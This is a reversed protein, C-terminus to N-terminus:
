PVNVHMFMGVVFKLLFFWFRVSQPASTPATVPPSPRPKPPPDKRPVSKPKPKPEAESTNRDSGSSGDTDAFLFCIFWICVFPMLLTVLINSDSAIRVTHIQLTRLILFRCLSIFCLMLLSLQKLKEFAFLIFSKKSRIIIGMQPPKRCLLTEMLQLHQISNIVM